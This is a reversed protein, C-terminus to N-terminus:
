QRPYGHAEDPFEVKSIDAGEKLVGKQTGDDQIKPVTVFKVELESEGNPYWFEIAALAITAEEPLSLVLSHRQRVGPELFITEDNKLWERKVESHAPFNLETRLSFMDEVLVCGREVDDTPLGYRLEFIFEEIKLRAKGKNDLILVLEVLWRGNKRHVFRIDLEPQIVPHGERTRVFRWFAWIGGAIVALSTVIAQIGATVNKFPEHKGPSETLLSKVWYFFVVLVLIAALMILWFHIRRRHKAEEAKEHRRAAAEDTTESEVSLALRKGKSFEDLNIQDPV